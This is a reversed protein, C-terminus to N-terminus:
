IYSFKVIHIEVAYEAITTICDDSDIVLFEATASLGRSANTCICRPQGVSFMGEGYIGDRIQDNQTLPHLCICSFALLQPAMVGSEQSPFRAHSVGLYVGRVWMHKWTLNPLKAIFTYVGFNPISCPVSGRPTPAHSIGLFLKGEGCTNGRRFETYNQALPTHM